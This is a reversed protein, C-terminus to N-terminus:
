EDDGEDLLQLIGTVEDPEVAEIHHNRLLLFVDPSGEEPMTHSSFIVSRDETGYDLLHDWLYQVSLADLPGFPEDLLLLPPQVLLAMCLALKYRMGRSFTFPFANRHETLQFEDLLEESHEKWHEIHNLQGVFQLHEWATLEDYFDPTDPVFVVNQRLGRERRRLNVGNIEVEGDEPMTWGSICRLFTSKGAGNRGILAAVVGEGLELSVGSLM